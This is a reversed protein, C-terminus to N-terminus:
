GYSGKGASDRWSTTTRVPEGPLVAHQVTKNLLLREAALRLDEEAVAGAVEYRIATRVAALEIGLDHAAKRISEERPDMVGPNYAVEVSRAGSSDGPVPADISYVQGVPDAFLERALRDLDAPTLVGELRYVHIIRVSEVGSVGLDRM